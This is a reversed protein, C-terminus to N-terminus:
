RERIAYVVIAGVSAVTALTELRGITRQVSPRDWFPPPQELLKIRGYTWTLERHLSATDLRYRAEVADGWAIQTEVWEELILLDGLTSTPVAVADCIVRGEEDIVGMPIPQGTRLAVSRACQTPIPASEAPREVRTPLPPLEPPLPTPPESPSGVAPGAAFFLLGWGMFTM